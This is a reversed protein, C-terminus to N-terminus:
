IFEVLRDMLFQAGDDVGGIEINSQYILSFIFYEERIINIIGLRNM